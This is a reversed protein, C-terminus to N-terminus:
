RKPENPGDDDVELYTRMKNDRKTFEIEVNPDCISFNALESVLAHRQGARKNCMFKTNICAKSPRLTLEKFPRSEWLRLRLLTRKRAM